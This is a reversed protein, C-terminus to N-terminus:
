RNEHLESLIDKDQLGSRRIYRETTEFMKHDLISKLLLPDKHKQWVEQALARRFDHTAWDDKNIGMTALANKLDEWYKHYNTRKITTLDSDKNSLEKDIFIFRNDLFTNAVFLRIDDQLPKNFVWKSKRKGGKTTFDLKLVVYSYPPKNIEYTEYSLDTRTLNLVDGARVGTENQIKAMIKHKHNKLLNIIQVRTDYPLYKRITIPDKLIPKHLNKLLSNKLIRDTIKFKIYNKIIDYYHYSRKEVTHQWLFNNYDNIDDINPQINIFKKIASMYVYVSSDSLGKNELYEKFTIIDTYDPKM